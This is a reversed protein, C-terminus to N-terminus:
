VAEWIEGSRIQNAVVVLRDAIKVSSSDLHGIYAMTEDLAAKATEEDPFDLQHEDTETKVKLYWTM